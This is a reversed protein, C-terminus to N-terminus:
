RSFTPRPDHFKQRSVLTIALMVSIGLFRTAHITFRRGQFRPVPITFSRGLFLLGRNMYSPHTHDITSEFWVM